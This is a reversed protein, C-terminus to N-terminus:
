GGSRQYKMHCENCSAYIAEGSVLIAQPDKAEVAKLAVISSEMLAQSLKVWDGKDVVRSGMMLLNGSEVLAAASNGVTTWEEDTRPVKEEVGSFTVITGVAGFVVEAAPAVIGNMIQKVDAVPTTLPAEVPAAEQAPRAGAILFGIGSLFLAVSVVFLWHITRM